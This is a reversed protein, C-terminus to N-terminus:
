NPLLVAELTKVTLYDRGPSVWILKSAPIFGKTGINLPTDLRIAVPLPSIQLEEGRGVGDEPAKVVWGLPGQWVKISTHAELAPPKSNNLRNYSM